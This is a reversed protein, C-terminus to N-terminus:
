RMEDLINKVIALRQMAKSQSGIKVRKTGQTNQTSQTQTQTRSTSGHHSQCSSSLDLVDGYTKHASEPLESFWKKSEFLKIFGEFQPITSMLSRSGLIILKSKARTMAVNVRRWERLLDGANNKDNSRVLSIIICDKDRGQFRDATMVDIEPFMGLWQYFYRLQAKYFSILGISSQSAGALMLSKVIQTILHAETPNEIKDGRCLERAPVKDHDLFVVKREPDLVAKMWDDSDVSEVREPYPLVLSQSAVQESGCKLRGEYILTNSVTMVDSCMRYQHTLEVVSEPHADCLQRFLSKDLGKARAEPSLVLPPLQYHDGVLVFREAYALPGLCVPMSVQSAEDLICYDFKKRHSFVVDTTALCTTAVVSSDQVAHDFDERTSIPYVTDKSYLSYKRVKASISKSSGTRLISPEDMRDILKEVINDVASHTYSAILVTKGNKVLTEVISAIVTTKGTGPMGLILCYDETHMVKDIAAQQDVNFSPNPEYEVIRNKSFKPPELDVVLRRRKEDGEPLFLNLINFRALSLGHFMEDKDLRYTKEMVESSILESMGTSGESKTLVTEFVQNKLSDFDPLKVQSCVWHRDTSIVVFDSRLNEIFGYALGYKGNEDSLIVRDHKSLQTLLMSRHSSDREFTYLYRHNSTEISQLVHLGGICKGGNDEREKSSLCWLDRKFSNILGEEKSIADNWCKFFDSYSDKGLHSTIGDYISKEIGSDEAKGDDALKHLVMCETLNFCRECSAQQKIKPLRSVSYTLYQSLRNRINVLLRLDNRKLADFYAAETKTYVLSLMDTHVDYRDRVLLTYLSVQARNTIYEKGTKIELPVVLKTGNALRAEIVVDILGRLGFMPTMINEEVDLVNSVHFGQKKGPLLPGPYSSTTEPLYTRIWEQIHVAHEKITDRLTEKDSDASMIPILNDELERDIISDMFKDSIDRETLCEQFLRHVVNGLILHVSYDGPGRFKNDIVARRQCDVATSATTASILVDPNWILLNHERDVFQPSNESSDTVIHIVDDEKFDLEAWLDRVIVNKISDDPALCRLILQDVSSNGRKFKGQTVSKIQYRHSSEKCISSKALNTHDKVVAQNTPDVKMDKFATELKVSQPRASLVEDLISDDGFTDDDLEEVKTTAQSKAVAQSNAIAIVEDGDDSFTDDKESQQERGARAKDVLADIDIDDDDFDDESSEDVSHEKPEDIDSMRDEQSDSMPATQSREKVMSTGIDKLMQSVDKPESSAQAQGMHLLDMPNRRKGPRLKRLNRVVSESLTNRSAIIGGQTSRSEDAELSNPDTTARTLAPAEYKEIMSRLSPDLLQALSDPNVQRLPSSPFNSETSTDAGANQSNNAENGGDPTTKSRKLRKVKPTAAWFINDDSSPHRGAVVEPKQPTSRINFHIEQSSSSLSNPDKTSLPATPRKTPLVSKGKSQFISKPQALNDTPKRGAIRRRHEPM